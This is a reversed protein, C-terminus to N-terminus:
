FYIHMYLNNKHYACSLRMIDNDKILIKELDINKCM